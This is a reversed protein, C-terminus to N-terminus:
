YGSLTPKGVLCGEMLMEYLLTEFSWWDVEYSYAVGRIVELALYEATGCFTDTSHNHGAPPGPWGFASGEAESLKLWPPTAPQPSPVSLDFEGSLSGSSTSPSTASTTRRPFVKSLGFDTLVIHGNAGILIHEPKLDRYIIGAAHLGEVGEV